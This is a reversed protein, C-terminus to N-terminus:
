KLKIFTISGNSKVEYFYHVKNRYNEGIFRIEIADKKIQTDKIDEYKFIDLCIGGLLYKGEIINLPINNELIDILTQSAPFEEGNSATISYIQKSHDTGMAFPYFEGADKLFIAVLKKIEECILEEYENLSEM